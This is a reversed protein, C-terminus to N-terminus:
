LAPQRITLTSKFSKMLLAEKNDYDAALWNWVCKGKEEDDLFAVHGLVTFAGSYWWHRQGETYKLFDSNKLGGAQAVNLMGATLFLVLIAIMLVASKAPSLRGQNFGGTTDNAVAM